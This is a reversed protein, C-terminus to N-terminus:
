FLLSIQKQRLLHQNNNCMVDLLPCYFMMSASLCIFLSWYLRIWQLIILFSFLIIVCSTSIRM